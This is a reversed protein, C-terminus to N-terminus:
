EAGTARRYIGWSSDTPGATTPAIFVVQAALTVGGASAQVTITGPLASTIQASAAGSADTNGVRSVLESGAGSVAFSVPQRAVPGNAADRFRADIQVLGNVAVSDAAPHISSHELSATTSTGGCATLLAAMALARNMAASRLM